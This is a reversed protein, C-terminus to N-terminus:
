ILKNEDYDDFTIIAPCIQKKGNKYYCYWEDGNEEGIGHLRFVIEPFQKSLERMEEDHEYWKSMDDEELTFNAREEDFLLEVLQYEFPYFWDNQTYKKEMYSVIQSITYKGKNNMVSLDHRTYYGM